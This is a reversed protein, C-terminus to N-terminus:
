DEEVVVKEEVGEEWLETGEARVWKGGGGVGMGAGGEVRVTGGSGRHYGCFEEIAVVEGKALM